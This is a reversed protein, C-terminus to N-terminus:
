ECLPFVIKYYLPEDYKKFVSQKEGYTTIKENYYAVNILGLIFKKPSEKFKQYVIGKIGKFYDQEFECNGNDSYTYKKFDKLHLFGYISNSYIYIYEKSIAEKIKLKDGKITKLSGVFRGSQNPKYFVVPNTITITDVIYFDLSEPNGLSQSLCTFSYLLASIFIIIHKKRNM